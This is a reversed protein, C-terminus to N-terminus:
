SRKGLPSRDHVIIHFPMEVPLAIVVPHVTVGPRFDLVIFELGSGSCEVSVNLSIGVSEFGAVEDLMRALLGQM